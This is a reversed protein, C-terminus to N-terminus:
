FIWNQKWQIWFTNQTKISCFMNPDDAFLVCKFLKSVNCIDNFLKPSVLTPGWMNSM